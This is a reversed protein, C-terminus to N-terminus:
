NGALEDLPIRDDKIRIRNRDVGFSLRDKLFLDGSTDTVACKLSVYGQKVDELVRGPDRELPSYFGGGGPLRLTVTQRPHIVYRSKPHPHGSNSPVVVGVTGPFVYKNM